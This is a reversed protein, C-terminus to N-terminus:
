RLDQQHCQGRHLAEVQGLTECHALLSTSTLTLLASLGHLQQTIRAPNDYCAGDAYISLLEALASIGEQLTHAGVSLGQLQRNLAMPGTATSTTTAKMTATGMTATNHTNRQM